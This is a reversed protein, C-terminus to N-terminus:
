ERKEECDEDRVAIGSIANPFIVPCENECEGSSILGMFVVSSVRPKRAPRPAHRARRKM